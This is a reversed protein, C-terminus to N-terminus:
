KKMTVQWDDFTATFNGTGGQVSEAVPEHEGDGHAAVIKHLGSRLTLAYRGAPATQPLSLKAEGFSCSVTKNKANYSLKMTGKTKPVDVSNSGKGAANEMRLIAGTAHSGISLECNIGSNEGTTVVSRKEAGLIAMVDGDLPPKNTLTVLAQSTFDATFSVDDKTFLVNWVKKDTGKGATILANNQNITGGGTSKTGYTSTNVKDGTFREVFSSLGEVRERGRSTWYQY